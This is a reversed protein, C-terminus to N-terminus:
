KMRVDDFRRLEKNMRRTIWQSAAIKWDTWEGEKLMSLAKRHDERWADHLHLMPKAIDHFWGSYATEKGEIFEECQVIFDKAADRVRKRGDVSKYYYDSDMGLLSRPQAMGYTYPDMTDVPPWVQDLVNLYVHFNNSVQYYKGLRMGALGAVVEAMVSMHVANAGYTGWVVDNSRCSVTTDLEWVSDMANWRGRFMVLDNCPIDKKKAGLDIAPDWMAMVAQRSLPDNFLIEGCLSIQDVPPFEWMAIENGQSDSTSEGVRVAEGRFHKRWRYGYAGHAEGNDEAFRSSFDKVFRDLYTADRRGALMWISEFLHFFPNADRNPEFLVRENPRYYVTTVPESSVLVDGARSSSRSGSHILHEMGAKYADNVNRAKIVHM